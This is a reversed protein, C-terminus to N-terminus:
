LKLMHFLKKNSGIVSMLDFLDGIDNMFTNKTQWM